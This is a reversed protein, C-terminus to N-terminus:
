KRFKFVRTPKLGEPFHNYTGDLTLVNVVKQALRNKNKRKALGEEKQFSLRNSIYEALEVLRRNRESGIRLEEPQAEVM